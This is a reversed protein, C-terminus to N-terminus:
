FGGQTHLFLGNEHLQNFSYELRLNIDYLTLIDLGFGGTYLLRNGLYTDYAKKIYSYGLDAFTKAYFTFPVKSITKSHFPFPVSFYFIKKKLTSKVLATAVGDIVYYELGRLYSEGYGLGRQNLYAQEFPLKIKGNLQFGTYWNKGLSYYKNFGAEVSLMNLGGTFGLGRKSILLFATTGKLAYAVNDVNTYQYRYVLDLFGKSADPSNFYHPNYNATVVSDDVTFHTYSASFYHRKFLGKRLSFGAGGYVNNRVFQGKKYELIKNNYSTKYSIERNQSYGAVVSFGEDLSHNSYPNTYSFSVNRTYGNILYIRLPDKRGTLNYHVFKIGYNVRDLSGKYTKIWENFNRDVLQFQPVPYIYWREKVNITVLIDTASVVQLNVNVEVFLTTNYVQQRTLQLQKTFDSIMLSDGKKFPTERLILYDKTKKNGKIQIDRVCLKATSDKPFEAISTISINQQEKKQAYSFLPTLILLSYYFIKKRNTM